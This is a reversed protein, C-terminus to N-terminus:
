HHYPENNLISYARYYQEAFILRIIQHSFTMNSLSLKFNARQYVAESFGFAGGIVFVIHKISQLQLSEIWKAFQESSFHKGKADLLIVFDSPQIQKLILEGEKQNQVSASMNKTTKLNPITTINFSLYKNIRKHYENIGEELYKESTKGVLILTSKM